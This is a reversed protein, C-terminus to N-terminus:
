KVGKLSNATSIIWPKPLNPLPKSTKVVAMTYPMHLVVSDVIPIQRYPIGHETFRVRNAEFFNFDVKVTEGSAKFQNLQYNIEATKLINTETIMCISAAINAFLLVYTLNKIPTIWKATLGETLILVLLPVFWLHPVYRAWWAEELIFVSFVLMAVFGGLYSKFLLRRKDLLLAVLLVITLLFIASFFIGFGAVRNDPSSLESIDVRNFTLPIKLTPVRANKHIDINDTHSFTSILFKEVRNKEPFGPPSTFTMIDVPHKGFLPYFVNQFRFTNIVFPNFGVLIVALFTSIAATVCVQWFRGVQKNLLLLMLLFLIFLGTFAIATFKINIAIVIIFGFLLLIDWRASHYLLLCAVLLCLLLSALQGDVLYTFVQHIAVPNFAFLFSLLITKKASLNVYQKLFATALCFSAILLIWNYAKGSEIQHTFAYVVAASTESQKPYHNIWLDENVTNSLLKYFPNWHNHGLQYVAEQHYEQGDHSLDYFQSSVVISLIIIALLIASTKVFVSQKTARYFHACYFYYLILSLTLIFPFHWFALAIHLAFSLAAVLSTLGVFGLLGFGISYFLNPGTKLNDM